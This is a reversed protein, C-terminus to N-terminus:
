RYSVEGLPEVHDFIIEEGEYIFRVGDIWQESYDPQLFTEQLAVTTVIGGTSGQFYVSEWSVDESDQVETLNVTAIKKGDQEEIKSVEIGLGAFQTQSLDEALIALKEELELDEDITIEKVVEKEYTDINAGYINFASEATEEVEVEVEAEEKELRSPDLKAIEEDLEQNNQQLQQIEEKLAQNEQNVRSVEESLDLNEAKVPSGCGTIAISTVMIGTLLFMMYIIKKM